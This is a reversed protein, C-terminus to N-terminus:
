SYYDVDIYGYDIDLAKMIKYLQVWTFIPIFYGLILLIISECHTEKALKYIVYLYYLSSLGVLCRNGSAIGLFYLIIAYIPSNGCKLLVYDNVIPIWALWSNEIKKKNAIKYVLYSYIFYSILGIVLMLVTSIINLWLNLQLMLGM